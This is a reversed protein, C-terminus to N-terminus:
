ATNHSWSRELPLPTLPPTTIFCHWGSNATGAETLVLLLFCITGDMAGDTLQNAARSRMQMIINIIIWLKKRGHNIIPHTIINILPFNINSLPSYNRPPQIILNFCETTKTTQPQGCTKIASSKYKLQPPVKLWM